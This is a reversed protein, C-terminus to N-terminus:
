ANTEFDAATWAPPPLPAAPGEVRPELESGGAPLAMPEGAPMTRVRALAALFAEVGVRSVQRLTRHPDPDVTGEETLLGSRRGSKRHLGLPLKILNGIGRGATGQKPFFEFQIETSAPPHASLFRAGFERVEAAPVPEALLVWLHRGKYGSDEVFSALGLEALAQRLRMAEAHALARLRKSEGARGRAQEIARKTVDIDIAFVSVTDDLRVLYIGLTVSGNLHQRVQRVTLPERVPSYGVDGSESVWQRAHVNERGAFLALFRVADADGPGQEALENSPDEFPVEFLDDADRRRPAEDLADLSIGRSVAEAVVQKAEQPQGCALLLQCLTECSAEDPRAQYRRRAYDLAMRLDGREEHLLRLRELVDPDDPTDRLGAEYQECALSPEGAAECLRAWALREKLDRPASKLLVELRARADPAGALVAHEVERLANSM